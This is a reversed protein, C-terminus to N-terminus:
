INVFTVGIKLSIKTGPNETQVYFKATLAPEPEENPTIVAYNKEIAPNTAYTDLNYSSNSDDKFFDVYPFSTNDPKVEAKLRLSMGEKYDRVVFYYDYLFEGTDKDRVDTHVESINDPEVVTMSEPYVTPNYARVAQGLLGIVLFSLVYVIVLLLITSKKM